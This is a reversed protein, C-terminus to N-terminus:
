DEHKALPNKGKVQLSVKDYSFVGQYSKLSNRGLELCMIEIFFDKSRVREAGM